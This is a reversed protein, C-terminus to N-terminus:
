LLINHLQAQVDAIDALALHGAKHLVLRNDLTFLNCRVVCSERLGAVILDTIRIDSPWAIKAATTIMALIIHGCSNFSASSLVLAPRRKAASHDTFPFPVVIIDWRDISDESPNGRSM